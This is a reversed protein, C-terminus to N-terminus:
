VIVIRNQQIMEYGFNFDNRNIGNLRSDGKEFLKRVSDMAQKHVSYFDGDSIAYTVIDRSEKYQKGLNAVQIAIAKLDVHIKRGM